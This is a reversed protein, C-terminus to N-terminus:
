GMRSRGELQRLHDTFIPLFRPFKLPQECTAARRHFGRRAAVFCANQPGNAQKEAVADIV